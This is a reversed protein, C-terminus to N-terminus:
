SQPAPPVPPQAPYQEMAPDLVAWGPAESTWIEMTPKLDNARDLVGLRVVRMQPRASSGGLIPTGCAPCHIRTLTNGSDAVYDYSATPGDVAIDATLFVANNTPGGAAIQQCRRCWCQRVALPEGDIRLEVAGCSCRGSHAM